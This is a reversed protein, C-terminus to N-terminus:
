QRWENVEAEVYDIVGKVPAAPKRVRVVVATVAPHAALIADAIRKALTEILHFNQQMVMDQVLNYISEYDITERLKDHEAAASFDTEMEVDVHFKGGLTKEESLNGHYAYFVANHLRIYHKKEM